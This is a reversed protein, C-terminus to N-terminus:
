NIPNLNFALCCLPGLFGLGMGVGVGVCLCGCPEGGLAAPEEPAGGLAAGLDPERSSVHTLPKQSALPIRCDCQCECECERECERVRM